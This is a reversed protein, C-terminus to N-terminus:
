YVSTAVEITIKSYLGNKGISYKSMPFFPKKNIEKNNQRDNLNIKIM